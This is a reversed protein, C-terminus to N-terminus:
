KRKFRIPKLSAKQYLPHSPCGDKNQNLCYQKGQPILDIVWRGRNKYHGNCGWAMIILDSMRIIRRLWYDNYMGIPKDVLKMGKSSGSRIGFLNGLIMGDYDWKKAYNICRTVTNDNKIEDASSPNLCIFGVIKGGPDGWLRILDYRYIRNPSFKANSYLTKM